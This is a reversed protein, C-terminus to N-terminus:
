NRNDIFKSNKLISMATERMTGVYLEAHTVVSGATVKQIEKNNDFQAETEKM